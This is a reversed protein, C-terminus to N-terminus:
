QAGLKKGTVRTGWDDTGVMTRGDKSLVMNHTWSDGWYFEIKHTQPDVLRWTGETGNLKCTGDAFISNTRDAVFISAVSWLWDGVFSATKSAEEEAKRKEEAIRKAEEVIRKEEAIRKAEEVIRKEEAIRKAEELRQKELKAKRKSEAEAKKKAEAKTKRKAEDEVQKIEDAELQEIQRELAEFEADNVASVSTPHGVMLILSIILSNATKLKM